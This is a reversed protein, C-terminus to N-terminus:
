QLLTSHEDSEREIHDVSTLRRQPHATTAHPWWDQEQVTM